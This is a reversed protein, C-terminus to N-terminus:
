DRATISIKSNDTKLTTTVSSFYWHKTCESWIVVPAYVSKRGLSDLTGISSTADYAKSLYEADSGMLAVYSRGRHMFWGSEVVLSSVYGKINGPYDYGFKDVSEMSAAFIVATNSIVLTCVLALLLTRRIKM